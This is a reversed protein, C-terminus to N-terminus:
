FVLDPHSTFFQIRAPKAQLLVQEPLSIKFRTKEDPKAVAYVGEYAYLEVLWNERLFCFYDDEYLLMNFKLLSMIQPTAVRLMIEYENIWEASADEVTLSLRKPTRTDNSSFIVPIIM